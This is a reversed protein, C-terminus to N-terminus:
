QLLDIPKSYFRDCAILEVPAVMSEEALCDTTTKYNDLVLWVTVNSEYESMRERIIYPCTKNILSVPEQKYPAKHVM